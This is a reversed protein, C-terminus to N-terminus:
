VHASLAHSVKGREGGGEGEEPARGLGNLERADPGRGVDNLPARQDHANEGTASYENGRYNCGILIVVIVSDLFPATNFPEGAAAIGGLVTFM